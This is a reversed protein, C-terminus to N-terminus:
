TGTRGPVTSNGPPRSVSPYAICVELGGSRRNRASIHGNDKAVLNRAIALGLGSSGHASRASDVQSFPEFVSELQDRPIGPGRDKIKILVNGDRTEIEIQITTGVPAHTRANSIINDLARSLYPVRIDITPESQCVVRVPTDRDHDVSEYQNAFQRIWACLNIRESEFREPTGAELRFLELMQEILSKLQAFASQLQVFAKNREESESEALIAGALQARALPARLDHSIDRLWRRQREISKEASEAIDNFATGVAGLEDGRILVRPPVRASLDGRRLRDAADRIERLPQTARWAFYGAVIVAILVANIVLPWLFFRKPPSRTLRDPSGSITLWRETGDPLVVRRSRTLLQAHKLDGASGSVDGAASESLSITLNPFRRQFEELVLPGFQEVLIGARVVLEDIRQQSYRQDSARRQQDYTLTLFTGTITLGITILLAIFYRLFISRTM